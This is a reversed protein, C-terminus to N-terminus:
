SGTKSIKSKSQNKAGEKELKTKVRARPERKQALFDPEEPEPEDDSVWVRFVTKKRVIDIPDKM